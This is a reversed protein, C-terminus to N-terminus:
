DKEPNVLVALGHGFSLGLGLVHDFLETTDVKTTM